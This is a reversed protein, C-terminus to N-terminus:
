VAGKLKLIAEEALRGVDGGADLEAAMRYAEIAKHTDDCRSLSKGLFLHAVASKPVVQVMLTYVSVADSFEGLRQHCFGLIHRAKINSGDLMVAKAACSKAAEYNDMLVNVQSLLTLARPHSPHERVLLALREYARAPAENLTKEIENLTDEISTVQMEM